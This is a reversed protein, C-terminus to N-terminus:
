HQYLRYHCQLCSEQVILDEEMLPKLFCADKQPGQTRLWALHNLAPTTHHRTIM